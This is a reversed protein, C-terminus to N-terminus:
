ADRVSARQLVRYVEPHAQVIEFTMAPSEAVPGWFIRARPDGGLDAEGPSALAKAPQV